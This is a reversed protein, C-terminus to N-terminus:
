IVIALVTMGGGGGGFEEPLHVGLFGAKGLDNWLESPKRQEKVVEKLYARGYSRALKSVPARLEAREPTDDVNLESIPSPTGKTTLM